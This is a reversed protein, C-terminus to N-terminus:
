IVTIIISVVIGVISLWVLYSRLINSLFSNQSKMTETHAHKMQLDTYAGSPNDVNQFKVTGKRGLGEYVLTVMLLALSALFLYNSFQILM